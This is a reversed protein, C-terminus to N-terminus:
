SAADLYPDQSMQIHAEARQREVYELVRRQRVHRAEVRQQARKFTAVLREPNGGLRARMSAAIRKARKPGFGAVLIEDDLSVYQRWTGPDGQRGCRGILQRDIRASDHLETCIVHLGGMEYVGEGLKIDTGRGAMNTSVTIQGRQGALAVIEAEREIQRANLVTHVLGAETLLRSLEESKDISRTGILVPRGLAHMEQVEAVIRTFKEAQDACVVAPLRQRIAPRNTPVTAVAVNYTRSIEPASTAITGTMGALHPWRAFLDQITIRAAHGSPVTIEVDEKAEVAQHLGDRWTRGEAARGTFEDIIVIKGDRVVYQRDRVFAQRARLAREVAEYIVLLSVSDLLDPRELARVRSRGRGLLECTQKQVDYEFDEDRELSEAARAAFQFIAQQVAQAEGPPSAIILPTRAEDILVNDAEDVLAFWYPRQLLKATASEAKGTLMAGLDGRGETIERNMLRDKLFDFGFEKATGYTVDCAYAKRREDFDMQSQVIGVSLGLAKYIPEMWEADRKALYDNVTALHAGKGALSYLVLPLTAVLTKGEGTQMEVISGHVLAVGALLQVDYHRMGLSRRGAERTAAFTEVLLSDAPEGAKARYSLSRALRRLAADSKGEMEDALADIREVTRWTAATIAPRSGPAFGKLWGFM